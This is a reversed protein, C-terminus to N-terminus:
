LYEYETAVMRAGHTSVEDTPLLMDSPPTTPKISGNNSLATGLGTTETCGIFKGTKHAPKAWEENLRIVIAQQKDGINVPGQGRSTKLTCRPRPLPDTLSETKTPTLGLVIKGISPYALAFILRM